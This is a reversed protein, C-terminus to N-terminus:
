AGSSGNATVNVYDNGQVLQAGGNGLIQVVISQVSVSVYKVRRVASSSSGSASPIKVKVKYQSKSSPNSTQPISSRSSGGGGCGEVFLALATLFAGAVIFARM